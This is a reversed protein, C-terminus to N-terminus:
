YKYAITGYFARDDGPAVAGGLFPYAVFYENGTLNKVHLAAKFHEAEYAIKADITYFGDVSFVNDADTFQRSAAYIGAGVSWGRLMPQDFAYNVWVRGSHQPVIPFKNGAPISGILNDAFEVDTYGYSALVQWNRMPQWLVDAEYGRSRQKALATAGLGLVVGVNDRDIEFYSVTGSFQSGVNFKFGVERQESYEPLQTGGPLPRPVARMGESYSAYASLGPLLDVLIGARPLIKHAEKTAVQPFGLNSEVQNIEVHSSRVGALIHIRDYITSQLQAYVGKTTFINEVDNFLTYTFFPIGPGKPDSYPVGFAPNPDALNVFAALGLYDASLFGQEKVRSYDAGVLVKNKTPGAQFKALLNAAVSVEEVEEHLESNALFWTSPPIAPVGAQVFDGVLLQTNQEFGGKSWRAKANASWVENLKHDLTVTVGHVESYGRPIDAPGIFMERDIRFNGAITGTVPLGQYTQQQSKSLRGQVTLTTDTKNTFTLTPNISYRDQELVEIFSDTATYEGTVRFLVTGNSTLPQNVDFYPQLFNHSGFTFGFEGSARDTPLKSVINIAGGIPAGGGGGYLIAAPGKLVEIREVNAFADRDGLSFPMVMGDLWAQAGFGRITYPYLQTDAISRTNPGQVNSVNQIAESVTIPKQDEIVSKPVVQISQPIQEIPTATKTSSMASLARYGQVPGATTLTTGPPLQLGRLDLAPNYTGLATAPSPSAEATAVTPAPPPPSAAAPAPKPKSAVKKRPKPPPADEVVAKKPAPKAAADAAPKKQQVVVPPLSEGAKGSAAAAPADSAPKAEQALAQSQHAVIAAGALAAVILKSM